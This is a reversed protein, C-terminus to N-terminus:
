DTRRGNPMVEDLLALVSTVAGGIRGGEASEARLEMAALQSDVELRLHALEPLVRAKVAEVKAAHVPDMFLRIPEGELGHLLSALFGRLVEPERDLLAPFLKQAMAAAAALVEEREVLAAWDTLAALAEVVPRMQEEIAQWRSQVEARAEAQGQQWGAQYGKERAEQIAAQARAEAEELVTRAEAKAREVVAGALQSWDASSASAAGAAGASEVFFRRPTLTLQGSKLVKSSLTM